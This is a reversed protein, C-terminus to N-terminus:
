LKRSSVSGGNVLTVFGILQRSSVFDPNLKILLLVTAVLVLKTSSPPFLRRSGGLLLSAPRSRLLLRYFM